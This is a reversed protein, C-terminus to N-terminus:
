EIVNDKITITITREVTKEGARRLQNNGFIANIISEQTLGNGNGDKVVAEQKPLASDKTLSSKLLNLSGSKIMKEDKSLIIQKLEDSSKSLLDEMSLRYRLYILQKLYEIQPKFLELEGTSVSMIRQLGNQLSRSYSDAWEPLTHYQEFIEEVPKKLRLLIEVDKASDRDVFDDNRIYNQLNGRPHIDTESNFRRQDFALKVIPKSEISLGATRSISEVMSDECDDSIKYNLKTPIKDSSVFSLFDSAMKSSLDVYGSINLKKM